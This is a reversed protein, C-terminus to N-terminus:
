SSEVWGKGDESSMGLRLVLGQSLQNVLKGFKAEFNGGFRRLFKSLGQIQSDTFFIGEEVFNHPDQRSTGHILSDVETHARYVHSLNPM